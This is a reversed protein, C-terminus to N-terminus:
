LGQTVYQLVSVQQPDNEERKAGTIGRAMWPQEIGDLLANCAAGHQDIHRLTCFSFNFLSLIIGAQSQKM